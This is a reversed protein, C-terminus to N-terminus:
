EDFQVCYISDLHGNLYVPKAKGGRWNAELEHKVRYIEKWPKDPLVTPLGFGTGPIVPGSMAYTLSKERCFAERWVHSTSSIRLWDRSVLAAQSLGRHDLHSLIQIALEIPLATTFDVRNISEDQYQSQNSVTVSIGVGSERDGQPDEVDLFHRTRELHENQLAATARAAAGGSNRPIVPPANGFGPIPAVLTECSDAPNEFDFGSKSHRSFSAAQRLKNWRSSTPPRSEPVEQFSSTWSNTNRRTRVATSARRILARISGRRKGKGGEESERPDSPSSANQWPKEYLIGDDVHDSTYRGLHFSRRVKEVLDDEQGLLPLSLLRKRRIGQSDDNAFMETSYSAPSAVFPSSYRLTSQRAEEPSLVRTM